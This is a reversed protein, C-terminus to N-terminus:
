IELNRFRPNPHEMDLFEPGIGLTEPGAAASSRM